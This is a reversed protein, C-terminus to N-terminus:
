EEPKRSRRVVVIVVGIAITTIAGSIIVSALPFGSLATAVVYALVCTYAAWLAGGLASWAVFSRYPYHSLGLTANVVFRAGPVYRGAVLLISARQGLLDLGQRVKANATAKELQPRIRGSFRRAIWYLASDGLIAGLAGALIVLALELEGDAALTSATNLTTEGPLLACIADGFVLLFVAAYTWSGLGEIHYGDVGWLLHVVLAVVAAVGVVGAAIWTSRRRLWPTVAATSV